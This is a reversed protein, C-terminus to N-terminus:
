PATKIDLSPGYELNRSGPAPNIFAGVACTHNGRTALDFYLRAYCGNPLKAFYEQEFGGRWNADDAKM